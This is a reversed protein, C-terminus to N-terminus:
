LPVIMVGNRRREEDRASARHGNWVLGGGERGEAGPLWRQVETETVKVVRPVQIGLYFGM